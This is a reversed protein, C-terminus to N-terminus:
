SCCRCRSRSWRPRKWCCSPYGIVADVTLHPPPLTSTIRWHLYRLLLAVAVIALLSRAMTSDRRLLPVIAMFAGLAILGPTLAMM